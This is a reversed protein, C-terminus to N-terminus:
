EPKIGISKVLAGFRPIDAAITATMAEPTTGAPVLGAAVLKDAVDPATLAAKMESNLRAIV